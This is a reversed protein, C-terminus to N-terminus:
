KRRRFRRREIVGKLTTKASRNLRDVLFRAMKSTILRTVAAIRRRRTLQGLIRRNADGRKCKLHDSWIAMGATGYVPWLAQQVFTRSQFAYVTENGHIRLGSLQCFQPVREDIIMEERRAVEFDMMTIPEPTWYEQKTECFFVRRALLALFTSPGLLELRDHLGFYGTLCRSSGSNNLAAREDSLLPIM